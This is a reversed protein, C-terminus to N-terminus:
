EKVEKEEKKDKVEVGNKIQDEVQNILSKLHEAEGIYKRKDEKFERMKEDFNHKLGKEIM